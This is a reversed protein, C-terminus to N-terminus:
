LSGMRVDVGVGVFRESCGVLDVGRTGFVELDEVGCAGDETRWGVWGRGYPHEVFRNSCCGGPIPTFNTAWAIVAHENRIAFVRLGVHAAEQDSTNEEEKRERKISLVVLTSENMPKRHKTILWVRVISHPNHRRVVKAAGGIHRYNVDIANETGGM